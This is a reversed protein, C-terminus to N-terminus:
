GVFFHRGRTTSGPAPRYSETDEQFSVGHHFLSGSSLMHHPLNSHLQNRETFEVTSFYLSLSPIKHGRFFAPDVDESFAIEEGSFGVAVDLNSQRFVFDFKAVFVVLRAVRAQNIRLVFLVYRQHAGHFGVEMVDMGGVSNVTFPKVKVFSADGIFEDREDFSNGYLLGFRFGVHLKHVLEFSLVVASFLSSRGRRFGSEMGGVEVGLVGEFRGFGTMRNM